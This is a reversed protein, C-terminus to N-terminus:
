RSSIEERHVTWWNNEWIEYKTWLQNIRLMILCFLRILRGCSSVKFGMRCIWWIWLIWKMWVVGRCKRCKFVIVFMEEINRKWSEGLDRRERILCPRFWLKLKRLWLGIWVRRDKWNLWDKILNLYHTYPPKVSM